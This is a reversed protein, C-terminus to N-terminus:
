SYGFCYRRRGTDAGGGAGRPSRPPRERAQRLNATRGVAPWSRHRRQTRTIGGHVTARAQSPRSAHRYAHPPSSTRAVPAVGNGPRAAAPHAARARARLPSRGSVKRTGGPLRGPSRPNSAHRKVTRRTPCRVRATSRCGAPRSTRSPSFHVVVFAGSMPARRRARARAALAGRPM